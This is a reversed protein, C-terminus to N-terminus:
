NKVAKVLSEANSLAAKSPPDGSLMKAIEILRQPPTLHQIASIDKDGETV